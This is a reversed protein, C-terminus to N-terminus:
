FAGLNSTGAPRLGNFYNDIVIFDAPLATSQLLAPSSNQLSFDSGSINKFIPDGQMAIMDGINAPNGPSLGNAFYLNRKFQWTSPDTNKGSNGAGADAFWVLSRSTHPGVAFINDYFKNKIVSPLTGNYTSWGESSVYGDVPPNDIMCDYLTNFAFWLQMNPQTSNIRIPALHTGIIVNNWHQGEYTGKKASFQDNYNIGYKAANELWNHHVRMGTFGQWIGGHPLQRSGALGENDNFQILSGGTMDHIYNYAIEWDQATVDAYIGHNQLEATGDINHLHNGFIQVGLGHGAIAAANLTASNGKVWPGLDNNIVRWPGSTYQLNIPAADRNAGGAVDMRLNSISIYEGSTGEASSQPGSIGGGKGALSTHHVDEVANGNIAGPYATIHIWAKATGNRADANISFRMWDYWGAPGLDISDTWNGGRIVIHDGAKLDFYAGAHNYGQGAPIFAQMHRYPKTIDGPIATSDNGSLSVFLIRGPSPTFTQDVNSALANVTLQIPLATGIAAGALGGVQVTLQQIGTKAFVKSPGLFRYNAVEAGGITLRIKSLDNGFNKGYVSLYAGLNNEGGSTPGTLADTYLILPSGEPPPLPPLESSQENSSSDSTRSIIEFSGNSCNNFALAIGSLSVLATLTNRLKRSLKIKLIMKSYGM